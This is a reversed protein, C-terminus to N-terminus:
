RGSTMNFSQKKALEYSMVAYSTQTIDTGLLFIGVVLGIFAWPSSLYTTKLKAWSRFIFVRLSHDCYDEVDKHVYCLTSKNIKAVDRTLRNLLRVVAWDSGALDHSLVGKERLLEVDDASDVLDKLFMVYATVDNGGAGADYLAEFAMVNRYKHETSDDLMVRPMRLRRSCSSFSADNLFNTESRIFRIGAEWLKQASRPAAPPKKKKARNCCTVQENERINPLYQMLRIERGTTTTPLCCLTIHNDQNSVEQARRTSQRLLSRRYLDLPHLGLAPGAEAVCDEDVCLFKLVLANIWSDSPAKGREATVIKKLLILPLQNEIMLMDRQIFAAIHEIAHPGFIPDSPAYPYDEHEHQRSTEGAPVDKGWDQLRSDNRMVELLFCGDAVMMELFKGRNRGRWKAHLGAYADELEGAVEEVAAAVEGLTRGARRLLHAVARRKHEEMPRLAADGHHFPGLTVTQPKFANGGGIRLRRPVCFICHKAWKEMTSPLEAGGLHREMDAVWM